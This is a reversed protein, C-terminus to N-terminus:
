DLDEHMKIFRILDMYSRLGGLPEIGEETIMVEGLDFVAGDKRVSGGVIKGEKTESETITVVFGEKKLEPLEDRIRFLFLPNFLVSKILSEESNMLIFKEVLPAVEAKRKFGGEKRKITGDVEVIRM